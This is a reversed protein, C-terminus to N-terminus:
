SHRDSRSMSSIHSTAESAGHIVETQTHQTEPTMTNFTCILIDANNNVAHNNSIYSLNFLVLNSFYLEQLPKM